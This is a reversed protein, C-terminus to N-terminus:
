ADFAGLVRSGPRAYAPGERRYHSYANGFRDLLRAPRDAFLGSLSSCSAPHPGRGSRSGPPHAGVSTRRTGASGSGAGRTVLRTSSLGGFRADRVVAGRRDHDQEARM